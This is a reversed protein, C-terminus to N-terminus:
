TDKKEFYITLRGVNFGFKTLESINMLRKEDLLILWDNVSIDYTTEDIPIRLVYKMNIANGKVRGKATGVVDSATATFTGDENLTITWVRELEKGDDFTFFERLTGVKGEWTAVITVKFTRNIEGNRGQIFGHAELDGNFYSKIDMKPENGEFSKFTPMHNSCASLVMTVVGLIALKLSKM